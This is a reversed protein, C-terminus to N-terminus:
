FAGGGGTSGELSSAFGDVKAGLSAADMKGPNTLSLVPLDAAKAGLKGALDAVCSSADGSASSVMLAVRTGSLNVKKLLSNVPAAAKGAWMPLALVVLDLSAPDLDVPEIPPTSGAMSDKGGVLFKRLGKKPYAKTTKVEVLKAGLRRALCEAAARTNGELSYYVVAARM